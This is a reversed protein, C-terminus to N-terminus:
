RGTSITKLLGKIKSAYKDNIAKVRKEDVSLLRKEFMIWRGGVMSSEVAGRDAVYVAHSYFQHVPSYEPRDFNLVILDALKSVELSGIRKSAGLVEAGGITAMKVVEFAGMVTPDGAHAKQTKSVLDMARFIDQRNNSVSGDTGLGVRVGAKRMEVVPAIGSSLKLNSDPNHSVATDTQKLVRIEGESLQVCHAAVVNSGLVGLKEAALVPLDGRKAKVEGVEGMSESLHIFMPTGHRDAMKKASQVHEPSCLYLSHPAPIVNVQPDGKWQQVMKETYALAELPTKFDPAPFDIITEGMWGRMGAEKVARAAEGEFYYMDAVATTGSRISEACAALTAEYVYEANVLGAELPFIYKRLWEILELDDAVGRMPNMALHTHTNVLGPMVWRDGLKNVKKAKFRELVEVPSGVGVIESGRIAIAGPELIRFQSDMTVVHDATIVVDVKDPPAGELALCGIVLCMLGFIRQKVKSM